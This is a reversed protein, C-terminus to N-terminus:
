TLRSIRGQALLQAHQISGNAKNFLRNVHIKPDQGIHRNSILYILNLVLRDPDNVVVPVPNLKYETEIEQEVSISAM